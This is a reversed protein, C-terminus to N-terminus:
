SGCSHDANIIMEKAEQYRGEKLLLFIDKTEVLAVLMKKKTVQDCTEKLIEARLNGFLEIIEKYEPGYLAKIENRIKRALLPSKGSTSVSIVLSGRKLIAPVLFNGTEPKDAINVLINHFRCDNAIKKNIAAQDTAAIVLFIGELDSPHYEKQKFEIANAEVMKQLHPTLNFSVVRVNAGCELLSLVKRQAVKGGGVVLCWYGYLNLVVPYYNQIDETESKLKGPLM